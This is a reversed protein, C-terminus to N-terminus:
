DSTEMIWTGVETVLYIKSGKVFLHVIKEGLFTGSSFFGFTNKNVKTFSPYLISNNIISTYKSLPETKTKEEELSVRQASDINVKYNGSTTQIIVQKQQISFSIMGEIQESYLIKRTRLNLVYFNNTVDILYLRDNDIIYDLPANSVKFKWTLTTDSLNGDAYLLYKDWICIIPSQNYVVKNTLTNIVEYNTIIYNGFTGFPIKSIEAVTDKEYSNGNFTMYTNVFETKGNLVLLPIGFDSSIALSNKSPNFVLTKLATHENLTSSSHELINEIVKEINEINIDHLSISYDKDNFSITLNDETCFVKLINSTGTSTEIQQTTSSAETIASSTADRTISNKINDISLDGPFYGSKAVTRNIVFKLEQPVNDFSIYLFPM